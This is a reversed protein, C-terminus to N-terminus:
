HHSKTMGSSTSLSLTSRKTLLGDGPMLIVGGSLSMGSQAKALFRLEHM